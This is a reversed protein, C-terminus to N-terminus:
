AARLLNGPSNVGQSGDALVLTHDDCIRSAGTNAFAGKTGTSPFRVHDVISDHRHDISVANLVDEDAPKAFYLLNAATAQSKDEIGLLVASRALLPMDHRPQHQGHLGNAGSRQRGQPRDAHGDDSIGRAHQVQVSTM